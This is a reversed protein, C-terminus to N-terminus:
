AELGRAERLLWQAFVQVPGSSLTLPEPLVLCFNKAITKGEPWPTLLRGQELEADIYLRPVLAVGLGALAAEILMSHLDYRAGIASNSLVIGIEEAYRQWADPNQRRHLRPLADLAINADAGALLVPSCVPVLVEELLHHLHMGAWAPHDFHIVADFGSGTLIFPEMCEAIHVTIHPHQDQFRKLRPILWRSAFTPIVAIEISAGDIPQGMMYLSDRELRDLIARVQVAYRSGNPALRVRNGVRQFLTMGLFDELRSIQRSVAGETLSLEEAARAFSNHRAAAEFALLAANSPIKRRM